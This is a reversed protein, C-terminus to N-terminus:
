IPIGNSDVREMKVGRRGHPYDKNPLNSVGVRKGDKHTLIRWSNTGILRKAHELDEGEFHDELEDHYVKKRGSGVGGKILDNTGNYSKLINDQIRKKEELIHNM